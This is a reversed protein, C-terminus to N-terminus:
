TEALTCLFTALLSVNSVSTVLIYRLHLKLLDKSLFFHYERQKKVNNNIFMIKRLDKYNVQM